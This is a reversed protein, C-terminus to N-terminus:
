RKTARNTEQIVRVVMAWKTYVDLDPCQKRKKKDGEMGHPLDMGHEDVGSTVDYDHLVDENELGQIPVTAPDAM